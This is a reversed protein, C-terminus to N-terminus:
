SEFRLLFRHPRKVVMCSSFRIRYPLVLYFQQSVGFQDNKRRGDAQRSARPLSNAAPRLGARESGPTCRQEEDSCVSRHKGGVAPSSTSSLLGARCVLGGLGWRLRRGCGFRTARTM